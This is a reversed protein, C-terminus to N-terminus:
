VVVDGPSTRAAIIWTLEDPGLVVTTWQKIVQDDDAECEDEYEGPLCGARGPTTWTSGSFAVAINTLCSRSVPCWCTLEAFSSNKLGSSSARSITSLSTGASTFARTSASAVTCLMQSVDKLSAASDFGAPSLSGM